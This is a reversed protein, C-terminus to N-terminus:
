QTGPVREGPLPVVDRAPGRSAPLTLTVRLGHPLNLAAEATGHHAAAIAAVIALGLGSGPRHAQPRARYFRDFVRPLEGALVGPGIDSIEILATGDGAAATITATTGAPTHAAVNALLNDIARRLMEEDGVTGLGRAIRAHWIHEPHATRARELCDAALASLDVHQQRQGPQLDLRALKLMDDVLASMRRSEVTIRHMAEDVQPRRPLAGQQYLEANARLSALPTRLEHSADAFFQQAAQQVAEKETVAAEIRALMGNLAMGLRGVETADDDPSVRSTLDGATIRDAAGAMAEIPRLGRRVVLSVGTVLVLTAALSAVIIIFQIHSVTKSLNGLSTAVILTRGGIAKVLLRLQTQGDASPVTRAHDATLVALDAPLEPVLGRNGEVIALTQGRGAGLAIYYNDLIPPLDLRVAIRPIQPKGTGPLQPQYESAVAQLDSDTQALLYGHLATVAAFGSVALCTLVVALVGVLV